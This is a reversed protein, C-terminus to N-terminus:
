PTGLVRSWNRFRRHATLSNTSNTKLKTRSNPKRLTGSNTKHTNTTNTKGCVMVQKKLHTINKKKGRINKKRALFNAINKEALVNYFQM